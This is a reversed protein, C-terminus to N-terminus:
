YNFDLQYMFLNCDFSKMTTYKKEKEYDFEFRFFIVHGEHIHHLIQEIPVHLRGGVFISKPFHEADVSVDGKGHVLDDIM